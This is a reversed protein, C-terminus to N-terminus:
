KDYPPIGVLHGQSFSWLDQVATYYDAKKGEL